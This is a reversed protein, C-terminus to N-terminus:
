QLPKYGSQLATVLEQELVGKSVLPWVSAPQPSIKDNSQGEGQFHTSVQVRVYGEPLDTTRVTVAAKGSSFSVRELLVKLDAFKDL